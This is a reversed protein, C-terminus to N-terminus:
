ALEQLHVCFVTSSRSVAMGAIRLPMAYALGQPHAAQRYLPEARRHRAGAPADNFKVRLLTGDIPGPRLEAVPVTGPRRVAALSTSTAGHPPTLEALRSPRAHVAM